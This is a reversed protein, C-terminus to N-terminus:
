EWPSPREGRRYRVEPFQSRRGPSRVEWARSHPRELLQVSRRKFVPTLAIGAVFGGIHAWFAVGGGEDTTPVAVGSLIQFVFWLGLVIMAPMNIIRVFVFFIIVVRVNARPHMILYSGLVGAIAGSAGVMPVESHPAYLAQALAAAV